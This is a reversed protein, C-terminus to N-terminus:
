QRLAVRTRDPALVLARVNETGHRPSKHYGDFASAALLGREVWEFLWEAAYAPDEQVRGAGHEILWRQNYEEHSGLPTTMVVPLGLATYFVLESPKTWLVDTDRLAANFQRFYTPKDLACLIRVGRGLEDTLGLDRVTQEFYANVELRTGAILNIRADGAAIRPKLSAVIGRAIDKQAGAGGVAYTVTLPGAGSGIGGLEREITDRYRSVFARHPDLRALRRALDDRLTDLNEEPLPFGTLHVNEPPVGYQQLRRAARQSPVLYVIRSERPHEAVWVRSIDADTVVCFVDRL